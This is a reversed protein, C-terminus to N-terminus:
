TQLKTDQNVVDLDSNNSVLLYPILIERLLRGIMVKIMQVTGFLYIMLSMLCHQYLTEYLGYRHLIGNKETM